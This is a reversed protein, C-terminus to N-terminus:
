CLSRGTSKSTSSSVEVVLNPQGNQANIMSVIKDGRGIGTLLALRREVQQSNRPNELDEKALIEALKDLQRGYVSEQNEYRQFSAIYIYSNLADALRRAAGKELGEAGSNIKQLLSGVKKPDIDAGAELMPAYDSWGLYDVWSQYTTPTRSLMREFEDSASVLRQRAAALDGETLPQFAEKSQEVTQAYPSSDLLSEEASM